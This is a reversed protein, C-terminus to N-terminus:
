KNDGNIKALAKRVADSVYADFEAPKELLPWVDDLRNFELIEDGQVITVVVCSAAVDFKKALAENIQFNVAEWLIKKSAWADAFDREVLQKARSEISNCTVCRFTAHMYFIKVLRDSSIAGGNSAAVMNGDLNKSAVSHKGLAFGISILVFALLLNTILRKNKESLQM